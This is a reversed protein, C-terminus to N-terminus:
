PKDTRSTLPPEGDTVPVLSPGRKSCEDQCMWSSNSDYYFGALECVRDCPIAKTTKFQVKGAKPQKEALLFGAM